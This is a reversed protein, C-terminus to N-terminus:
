GATSAAPIPYDSAMLLRDEMPEMTCAARTPRPQSQPQNANRTNWTSKINKLV